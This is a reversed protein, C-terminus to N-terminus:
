VHAPAPKPQASLSPERSKPGSYIIWLSNHSREKFKILGEKKLDDLFYQCDDSKLKLRKALDNKKIVGEDKIIHLAKTSVMFFAIKSNFASYGQTYIGIISMIELPRNKYLDFSREGSVTSPFSLKYDTQLRYLINEIEKWSGGLSGTGKLLFDWKEWPRKLCLGLWLLFINYSRLKKNAMKLTKNFWSLECDPGTFYKHKMNIYNQYVRALFNPDDKKEEKPFYQELREKWNYPGYEPAKLKM